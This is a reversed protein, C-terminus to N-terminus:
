FRYSVTVGFTMPPGDMAYMSAGNPNFWTYYEQDFLNKSWVYAEWNKGEYGLRVNV